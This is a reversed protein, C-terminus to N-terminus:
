ALEFGESSADVIEWSFTKSMVQWRGDIRLLSIYDTYLRPLRAARCKIMACEPSSRDITLIEDMRPQGLSAPSPRAAVRQLYSELVEDQLEGDRNSFLRCSPHFVRRMLAIDSTYFADLYSQAAQVLESLDESASM